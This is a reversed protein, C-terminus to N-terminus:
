RDIAIAIGEGCLFFWRLELLADDHTRAFDFTRQKSCRIGGTERVCNGHLDGIDKRRVDVKVAIQALSIAEADNIFDPVV